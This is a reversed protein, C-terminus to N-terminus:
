VNKLGHQVNQQDTLMESPLLPKQYGMMMAGLTLHNRQRHLKLTEFIIVTNTWTFVVLDKKNIIHIM